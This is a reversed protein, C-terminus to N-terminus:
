SRFQPTPSFNLGPRMLSVPVAAGTTIVLMAAAVGYIAPIRTIGLLARSISRRGAAALFVGVTYTLLSSTVFYVTAHAMAANGFAFLVVPLGYNGGNSFMVVLLFGSLDSRNLHLPICALRALLGMVLMVLIALLAMRGAEPGSIKSTTLLRFVFCPILAYFVVHSLTKVSAQLRSALLYGVAAILFIPLIDSVFVSLIVTWLHTGLPVLPGGGRGTKKLQGCASSVDNGRNKRIFAATGNRVLIHQFRLIAEPKATYPIEEAPERILNVKVRM